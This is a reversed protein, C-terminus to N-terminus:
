IRDRRRWQALSSNQLLILASFSNLKKTAYIRHIIPAHNVAICPYGRVTLANLRLHALQSLGSALFHKPLHRLSNPTLTFIGLCNKGQYDDLRSWWRATCNPLSTSVWALREISSVSSSVIRHFQSANLCNHSPITLHLLGPPRHSATASHNPSDVAQAPARGPALRHLSPRTSM